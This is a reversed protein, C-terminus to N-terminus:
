EINNSALIRAPTKRLVKFLPMLGVIVNFTYILLIGNAVTEVSLTFWSSFSAINTLNKIIYIMFMAGHCVLM